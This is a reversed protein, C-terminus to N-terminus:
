GDLLYFYYFGFTRFFPSLRGSKSESYFKEHDNRM